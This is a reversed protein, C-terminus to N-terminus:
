EEWPPWKEGPILKFQIGNDGEFPKRHDYGDWFIKRPIGKPFAECVDTNRKDFHECSYCM